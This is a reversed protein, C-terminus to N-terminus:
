QFEFKIQRKKETEALIEEDFHKITKKSFTAATSPSCHREIYFKVCDNEEESGMWVFAKEAYM